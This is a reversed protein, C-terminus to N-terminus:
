VTVCVCVCNCECVCLQIKLSNWHAAEEAEQGFATHPRRFPRALVESARQLNGRQGTALQANRAALLSNCTTVAIQNTLPHRSTAAPQATSALALQQAQM